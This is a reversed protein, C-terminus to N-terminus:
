EATIDCGGGFKEWLVDVEFDDVAQWLMVPLGVKSQPIKVVCCCIVFLNKLFFKYCNMLLILFM